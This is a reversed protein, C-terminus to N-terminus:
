IETRVVKSISVNNSWVDDVGVVDEVGVGVGGVVDVVEVVLEVVGGGVVEDGGVVEVVLVVADRQM